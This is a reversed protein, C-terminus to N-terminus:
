LQGDHDSFDGSNVTSLFVRLQDADQLPAGWFLVRARWMDGLCGCCHYISGKHHQSHAQFSVPKLFAACCIHNVNKDFSRRTRYNTWGWFLVRARWMDGLCGCCHYISGKHHQSHAQFSVPKLFAACCIHNVNKDFSRRTRYNTWGPGSPIMKSAGFLPM